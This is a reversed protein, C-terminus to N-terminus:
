TCAVKSENANLPVQHTELIRGLKNRKTPDIKFFRLDSANNGNKPHIVDNIKTSLMNTSLENDAISSISSILDGAAQRKDDSCTLKTKYKKMTLSFLWYFFHKFRNSFTNRRELYLTLSSHLANRQQLGLQNNTKNLTDQSQKLEEALRTSTNVSLKLEEKTEKLEKKLQKITANYSHSLTGNIDSGICKEITTSLNQNLSDLYANFINIKERIAKSLASFDPSPRKLGSSLETFADTIASFQREIEVLAESDEPTTTLNSLSLRKLTATIVAQIAKNESDQLTNAELATASFSDPSIMKDNILTSILKALNLVWPSNHAPKTDESEDDDSLTEQRPETPTIPTGQSPTNDDVHPQTTEAEQTTEVAQSTVQPNDNLKEELKEIFPKVRTSFLDYLFSNFYFPKLCKSTNTTDFFQNFKILSIKKKIEATVLDLNFNKEKSHKRVIDCINNIDKQHTIIHQELEQPNTTALKWNEVLHRTIVSNVLPQMASNIFPEILFNSTPFTRKLVDQLFYNSFENKLFSIFNSIIEKGNELNSADFKAYLAEKNTVKESFISTLINLLSLAMFKFDGLTADNNETMLKIILIFNVISKKLINPDKPTIDYHSMKKSFSSILSLKKLSEYRESLAPKINPIKSALNLTSDMSLALENVFPSSLLNEVSLLLSEEAPLPPMNENSLVWAQAKNEKATPPTFHALLKDCAEIFSTHEIKNDPM